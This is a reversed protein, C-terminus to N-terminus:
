KIIYILSVGAKTPGFYNRDETAQKRGCNVCDYKDYHLRAYGVGVNAELSWRKGLYFSYGYSIGAGAGWGEFRSDASNKGFLLPLNHQAINYQTGLVHVGFFHGNFKRCLWYRYEVEGLWHVLKKNNADPNSPTFWNYGAGIDLTSRKGLAVEVSLNPTYAYAGYLLNTKVAVHQAEAVPLFLLCFSGILFATKGKQVSKIRKYLKGM